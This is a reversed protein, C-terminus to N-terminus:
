NQKLSKLMKILKPHPYCDTKDKRINSHSLIGKIKGYFANDNYDFATAEDKKLFEQLGKTVDIGDRHSIFLILDKLSEIQADSYNHWYQYGRWKYGLDCVQSPDVITGVYTKFTSGVKTLFGFNNLEIGVSNNHMHRSGNNGLHAGYAGDPMCKIIKGDWKNDNGKVSPGGIAFETAIRGRTDDNWEKITNLPNNWGSTHHIFIYEPTAPGHMYEDPDLLITDFLTEVIETDILDELEDGFMIIQTQVGVIGDMKLSHMGQFNKVASETKPGFSGDVKLNLKAQILRVDPGSDGKKIIKRM